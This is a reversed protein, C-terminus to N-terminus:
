LEIIISFCRVGGICAHGFYSESKTLTGKVNHVNRGMNPHYGFVGLCNFPVDIHYLIDAKEALHKLLEWAVNESSMYLITLCLTVCLPESRPSM